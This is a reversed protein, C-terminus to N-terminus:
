ANRAIAANGWMVSEELKTLALSLQRSEPCYETLAIAFSKAFARLDEHRKVKEPTPSHYTFDNEIRERMAKTSASM